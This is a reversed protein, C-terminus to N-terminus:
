DRKTFNESCILHGRAESGLGQLEGPAAPAPLAPRRAARLGGRPSRRRAPSAARSRAGRPCPHRAGSVLGMVARGASPVNLFGLWSTPSRPLLSDPSNAGRREPVLGERHCQHLRMLTLPLLGSRTILQRQTQIFDTIKEVM